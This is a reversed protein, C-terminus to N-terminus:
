IVVVTPWFSIPERILPLHFLQRNFSTASITEVTKGDRSQQYPFNRANLHRRSQSMKKLRPWLMQISKIKGDKKMKEQVAAIYDDFVQSQRTSLLSQTLQDRQSAFQALDAETRKNVEIIIWNAGVRIPTKSM